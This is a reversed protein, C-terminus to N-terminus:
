ERLVPLSPPEGTSALLSPATPRTVQHNFLQKIYSNRMHQKHVFASSRVLDSVRCDTGLLVRYLEITISGRM